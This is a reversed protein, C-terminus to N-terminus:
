LDSKNWRALRAKESLGKPNGAKHSQKIWDDLDRSTFELSGRRPNTPNTNIAILKQRHVAVRLSNEESIELGNAQCYALAEKLNLKKQEM